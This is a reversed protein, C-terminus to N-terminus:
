RLEEDSRRAAPRPAAKSMAGAAPEACVLPGSPALLGDGAVGVAGAVGPTAGIVFVPGPDAARVGPVGPEGPVPAFPPEVPGVEPVPLEDPPVPPEDDPEPPPPEPPPEPPQDAM